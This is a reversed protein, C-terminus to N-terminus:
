RNMGRRGKELRHGIVVEGSKGTETQTVRQSGLPNSRRTGRKNGRKGGRKCGREHQL